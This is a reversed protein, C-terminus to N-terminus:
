VMEKAIERAAPDARYPQVRVPATGGTDIRYTVRFDRRFIRKVDVASADFFRAAGRDGGGVFTWFGFETGVAENEKGRWLTPQAVSRVPSIIGVVQRHPVYTSAGSFSTFEVYGTISSSTVPM